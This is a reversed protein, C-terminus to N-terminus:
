AASEGIRVGNGCQYEYADLGIGKLYEPMQWSEKYGENYFLDGNGAPGFLAGM